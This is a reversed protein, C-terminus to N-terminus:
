AFTLVITLFYLTLRVHHVQNTRKNLVQTCKSTSCYRCLLLIVGVLILLLLGGSAGLIIPLPSYEDVSVVLRIVPMALLGQCVYMTSIIRLFEYM